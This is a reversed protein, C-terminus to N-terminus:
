IGLDKGKKPGGEKLIRKRAKSENMLIGGRTKKLARLSEL